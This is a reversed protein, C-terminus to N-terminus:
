CVSTVIITPAKGTIFLSIRKQSELTITQKWWDLWVYKLEFKLCELTTEVTFGGGAYM